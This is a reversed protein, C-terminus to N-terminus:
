TAMWICTGRDYRILGAKKLLTRARDTKRQGSTHDDLVEVANVTGKKLAEYYAVLEEATLTWDSHWGHAGKGSWPGRTKLAALRARKLGDGM